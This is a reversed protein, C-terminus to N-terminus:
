YLALINTATTGTSLVRDVQVDLRGVPVAAFTVTDGRVLRVAVAGTGGIWLFRTAPITTADSPTVATAGYAPSFDTSRGAM